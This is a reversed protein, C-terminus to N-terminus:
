LTVTEGPGQLQVSPQIDGMSMAICSSLHGDTELGGEDDTDMMLGNCNIDRSILTSLSSLEEDYNVITSDTQLFSLIVLPANQGIASKWSDDM